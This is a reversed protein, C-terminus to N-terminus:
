SVWKPPEFYMEFQVIIWKALFHSLFVLLSGFKEGLVIEAAMVKSGSKKDREM